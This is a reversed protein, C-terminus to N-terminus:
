CRQRSKMFDNTISDQNSETIITRRREIVMLINLIYVVIALFPRSYIEEKVNSQLDFINWLMRRVWEGVKISVFHVTRSWKLLFYDRISTYKRRFDPRGEM